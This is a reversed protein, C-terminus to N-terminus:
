AAVQSESAFRLGFTRGGFSFVGDKMVIVHPTARTYSPADLELITFGRQWDADPGNAYEHDGTMCPNVIGIAEIDASRACFMQARHVHGCVVSQGMTKALMNAAVHKGAGFRGGERHGHRVLFQGVMVGRSNGRQYSWEISADMGHNVCIEQFTLGKVGLLAQAFEGQLAKEIRLDHNGPIILLRDCERKLQNAQEVLMEIEPAAHVPDTASKDFRGFMAFDVLDGDLITLYPRTHAHWERFARWAPVDHSRFHIDSAIACYRSRTERVAPPTLAVRASGTGHYTAKVKSGRDGGGLDRPADMAKVFAARQSAPTVPKEVFRTCACERCDSEDDLTTFHSEPIHGCGACLRAHSHPAANHAAADDRLVKRVVEREREPPMRTITQAIEGAQGAKECADVAKSWAGWRNAYTRFAYTGHAKYASVTAGHADIVRRLDALLDSDPITPM